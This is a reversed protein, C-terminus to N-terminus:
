PAPPAAAPRHGALRRPGDAVGAPPAPDGHHRRRAPAGTVAHAPLLYRPHPTGGGSAFSALGVICVGLWALGIAWVAVDARRPHPVGRALRRLGGLLAVAAVLGGLVLRTGLDPRSSGVRVGGTGIRGFDYSGWM